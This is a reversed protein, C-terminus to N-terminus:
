NRASQKGPFPVVEGRKDIGLQVAVEGAIADAAPRLAEPDSTIYRDTISRKTYGHGLLAGVHGTYRGNAVHAGTSAFTHRLSHLDIGPLEALGAAEYATRRAKDIGVLPQRPDKGPCVPESEDVSKPKADKLLKVAAKGIVRTQRGTKTDRLHIVGAKLDVDGWRLGERKGRRNKASHGLLESRRLGTLALLRIALLASPKLDGKEELEGMKEGLKELQKTTLARREGAEENRTVHRCPNFGSPTLEEIATFGFVASFATLTRNAEVPALSRHLRRVQEVTVARIPVDKLKPLVNNELLRKAEAYGSRKGRKAPGAAREELDVLYNVVADKVTTAERTARRKEEQPDQGAAVAARHTQAIARAQDLTIAGYFDIQLRRRAGGAPPRYDFVFRVRGRRAQVCLGPQGADALYATFAVEAKAMRRLADLDAKTLRKAARPM